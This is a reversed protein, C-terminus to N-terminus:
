GFPAPDVAPGIAPRLAPARPGPTCSGPAPRNPKPPTRACKKGARADRDCTCTTEGRGVGIPPSRRRSGAPRRFTNRAPRRAVVTKPRRFSTQRYNEGASQSRARRNPLVFGLNSSACRAAAAGSAQGASPRRRHQQFQRPEGDLAIEAPSAVRVTGRVEVDVLVHVSNGGWWM